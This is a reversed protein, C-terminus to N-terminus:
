ALWFAGFLGLSLCGESSLGRHDGKGGEEGEARRGGGGEGSGALEHPALRSGARRSGM